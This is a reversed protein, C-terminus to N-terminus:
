GLCPPSMPVDGHRALWEPETFTHISLAHIHHALEEALVGNVRQHRKILREGEFSDAVLVVKFHSESGDPVNHNGSENIVELHKLDIASSLKEEINAKVSV